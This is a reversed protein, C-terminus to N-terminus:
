QSSPTSSEKPANSVRKPTREGPEDQRHHEPCPIASPDVAEMDVAHERGWACLAEIVPRLSIGNTTAAYEVRAPVSAYVTRTVLGDAELSRLQDVLVKQTIGPILRTLQSLRRPTDLVYWLILMKWRGGIVQLTREVSSLPLQKKIRAM